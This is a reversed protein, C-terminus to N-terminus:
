RKTDYNKDNLQEKNYPSEEWCKQATIIGFRSNCVVKEFFNINMVM